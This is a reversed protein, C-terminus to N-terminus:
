YKFLDLIKILIKQIYLVENLCEEADVKGINNIHAAPNRYREKIHNVDRGIKKVLEPVENKSENDALLYKSAFEYLRNKSTELDKATVNSNKFFLCIHAVSGLTFKRDELPIYKDRDNPDKQRLVYHWKNFQNPFKEQLYAIFDNYFRRKMEIELAKTVLICVGSYDLPRNLTSMQVFLLQATVLLQQTKENLKNWNNGFAIKLRAEEKPYDQNTNHKNMVSIIKRTLQESFEERLFEKNTEEFTEEFRELLDEKYIKMSVSINELSNKIVEMSEKLDGIGDLIEQQGAKLEAQGQKLETATKNIEQRIQESHKLQEEKLEATGKNIEDKLQKTQENQAIDVFSTTNDLDRWRGDLDVFFYIGVGLAFNGLLYNTPYYDCAKVDFIKIVANGEVDNIKISPQIMYKIRGILRYSDDDQLEELRVTLANKTKEELTFLAEYIKKGQSMKPKERDIGKGIKTVTARKAKGTIFDQMNVVTAVELEYVGYGRDYATFSFEGDLYFNKGVYSAPYTNLPLDFKEALEETLGLKHCRDVDRNSCLETLGSFENYYIIETPKM